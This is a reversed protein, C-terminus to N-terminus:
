ATTMALSSSSYGQAKMQKRYEHLTESQRSAFTSIRKDNVLFPQAEMLAGYLLMDPANVILYHAAADSAFNRLLTPKAVYTGNLTYTGDPAPGFIWNAGDRAMWKPDGSSTRAYRQLVQERSKFALPADSQGNLYAIRLALFDTPVAATSSFSVSLASEMWPGYNEIQRYFREEFNQIFGPIADNLDSRALWSAVETQLTTYTTIVAM